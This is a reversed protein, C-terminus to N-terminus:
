HDTNENVLSVNTKYIHFLGARKGTVHKMPRQLLSLYQGWDISPIPIETERNM